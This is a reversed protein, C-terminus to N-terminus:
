EGIEFETRLDLIAWAARRVQRIVLFRLTALLSSDARRGDRGDVKAASMGAFEIEVAKCAMSM